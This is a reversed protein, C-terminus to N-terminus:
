RAQLELQPQSPAEHCTIGNAAREAPTLQATIELCPEARQEAIGIFNQLILFGAVIIPIGIAIFRHWWSVEQNLGEMM